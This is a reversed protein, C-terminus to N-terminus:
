PLTAYARTLTTTSAQQFGFRAKVAGVTTKLAANGWYTLSGSRTPDVLNALNVDYNPDSPNIRSYQVVLYTDRGWTANAFYTSSSTLPAVDASGPTPYPSYPAVGTPSGLGVGTTGTFTSPAAGNKQAVWSATSFPIIENVNLVSGDNEPTTNGTDNVAGGLSAVSIAGLFFSRTGSGSQPIRPTITVGGVTTAAGVASATYLDHLQATTLNALVAADAANAAKYAYAVGDRAFPVYALQGSSSANSGWNSSSRAIDVQGTITVGNWAAGDISRSLSKVGNGSGAPRVFYPGTAKTQIMSSGFADFNGVYNGAAIVRVTSGTVTTGNTLANMVDQITDSGTAAYGPAVPDASAPGALMAGGAMLGVTVGLVAIKRLAKM